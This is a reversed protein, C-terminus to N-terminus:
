KSKNKIQDKIKKAKKKRAKISLEICRKKYFRFFMITNNKFKRKKLMNQMWPYKKFRKNFIFPKYVRWNIANHGKEYKLKWNINEKYLDFDNEEIKLSNINDFISKFYMKIFLKTFLYVSLFNDDNGPLGYFIGYFGMNSDMLTSCPINLVIAEFICSKTEKVNSAFVYSPLLSNYGLGYFQLYLQENNLFIERQNSLAGGIWKNNIYWLQKVKIDKFDTGIKYGINNAILLKQGLLCINYSIYLAQKLIFLTYYLNIIHISNRLGLLFYSLRYDCEWKYHGLHVGNKIFQKITYLM